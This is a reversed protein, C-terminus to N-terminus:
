STPCGTSYLLPVFWHVTNTIEVVDLLARYLCKVKGVYKRSISLCWIEYFDGWHSGLVIWVFVYVSMVLSVTMKRLKAFAGLLLGGRLQNVRANYPFLMMFSFYLLISECVFINILLKGWSLGQSAVYVRSRTRKAESVGPRSTPRSSLWNQRWTRGFTLSRTLDSVKWKRNWNSSFGTFWIFIQRHWPFIFSLIVSHQLRM